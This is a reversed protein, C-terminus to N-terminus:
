NTSDYTTSKSTKRFDGEKNQEYLWYMWGSGVHVFGYSEYWRILRKQTQNWDYVSGAREYPYAQLFVNVGNLRANTLIRLLEKTGEGRRRQSRPISIEEIFWGDPSPVVESFHDQWDSEALRTVITM